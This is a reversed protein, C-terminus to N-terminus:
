FGLYIILLRATLSLAIEGIGSAATTTVTPRGNWERRWGQRHRGPVAHRTSRGSTPLGQANEQEAGFRADRRPASMVCWLGRTKRVQLLMMSTVLERLGTSTVLESSLIFIEERSVSPERHGETLGAGTSPCLSVSLLLVGPM